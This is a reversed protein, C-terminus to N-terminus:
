KKAQAHTALLVHSYDITSFVLIETVHMVSSKISKPDSVYGLTTALIGVMATINGELLLKNYATYDYYKLYSKLFKAGIKTSTSNVFNNLILLAGTGATTIFFTSGASMIYM